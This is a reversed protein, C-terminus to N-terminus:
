WGKRPIENYLILINSEINKDTNDFFITREKDLLSNFRELFSDRIKSDDLLKDLTSKGRESIRQERVSEDLSVFITLDPKLIGYSSYDLDVDLGAVQHSVITDILYRVCYVNKNKYDYSKKIKDSMYIVSSLYFLYHALQSTERVETDIRDRGSFEISPTKLLVSGNDMKNLEKAVTSTGSGDLGTIVIFMTM